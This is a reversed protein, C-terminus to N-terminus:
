LKMKIGAWDALMERFIKANHRPDVPFKRHVLFNNIERTMENDSAMIRLEEHLYIKRKGYKVLEICIVPIKDCSDGKEVGVLASRSVAPHQNFVAEVPITFYVRGGSIVRHSKRGYFWLRGEPDMRGLDGTRHWIKGSDREYIKALDNVESEGRYASSVNPGCVVIEGLENDKLLLADEFEPVPSDSIALIKLELGELPYGLCIGTEPIDTDSYLELLEKDGRTALPLAETAGYPTHIEADEGLLSKFDRIASPLVPAGATMIWRLSGLSVDETLGYAALRKLVMPSCFMHTCHYDKINKIIRRPDLKAPKAMDMDALVLSIGMCILLFGVLPFTCLDIEHPSYGFTTRLIHLQAELMGRTYIVGKPPGTSGSTFFLAAEEDKEVPAAKSHATPCPMKRLSYARQPWGRGTSIWTAIHRFSRPYLYRLIFSRPIGVFAEAESQALAKVMRSRGMGPDIMVPIAGIRFLAISVAFLELGPTILVITRTGAGIGKSRFGEAYRDIERILDKFCLRFPHLFAAKDPHAEAVEYLYETINQLCPRNM